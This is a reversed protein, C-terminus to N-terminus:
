KLLEKLANSDRELKNKEEGQVHNQLEESLILIGRVANITSCYLMDADDAYDGDIENAGNVCMEQTLKLTTKIMKMTKEFANGYAKMIKKLEGGYTAGSKQICKVESSLLAVAREQENVCDYGGSVDLCSALQVSVVTSLMMLIKM